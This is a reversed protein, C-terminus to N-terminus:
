SSAPARHLTVSFTTGEGPRSQVRLVAHHMRAIEKVMPLGLGTGQPDQLVAEPARFHEEFISELHEPAIGIGQDRVKVTARDHHVELTVEVRGGDRSYNVANRLLNAFLTHLHRKSACVLTPGQGGAEFVLRIGRHGALERAAAVEQRLLAALDLPAMDAEPQVLTRLNSLHIIDLVKAMLAEARAGIRGIVERAKPPLDGCYGGQLTYVQTMIAALPSKLEHASHLMARTKERDLTKLQDCAQALHDEHRRLSATIEGIVYWFYLFGLSVGALYFALFRPDHVFGPNFPAGYISVPALLGLYELVTPLLAFATGLLALALSTARHCLLTALAIETLYLILVPTEIGGLVHTAVALAAYDTLTQAVVLLRARAPALPPRALRTFLANALALWLGIGLLPRADLGPPAWPTTALGAAALAAGVWLWRLMLFWRMRTTLERQRRADDYPHYTGPNLSFRQRWTKM